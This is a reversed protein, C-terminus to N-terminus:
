EIKGYRVNRPIAWYLYDTDVTEGGLQDVLLAIQGRHYPAHGILQLIQGEIQWRYRSGDNAPFEFDQALTEGNLNQLYETWRAEIAAFRPGLTMLDCNEDYWDVQNQAGNEMRDLWNERCAALHGALSVAKQFKPDARSGISVSDIMNLLKQNCDKEHEYLERYREILSM